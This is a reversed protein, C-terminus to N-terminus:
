GKTCITFFDPPPKNIIKADTFEAETRENIAKFDDTM